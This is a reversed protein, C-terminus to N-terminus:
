RGFKQAPLRHIDARCSNCGEATTHPLMMVAQAQITCHCDPCTFNNSPPTFPINKSGDRLNIKLEPILWKPNLPSNKKMSPPSTPPIMNWQPSFTKKMTPEKTWRYTLCGLHVPSDVLLYFAFAYKEDLASNNEDLPSLKEHVPSNLTQKSNLPFHNTMSRLHCETTKQNFSSKKANLHSQKERKLFSEKKISSCLIYM